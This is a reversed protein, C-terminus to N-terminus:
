NYGCKPCPGSDQYPLIKKCGGCQHVGGGCSNCIFNPFYGSGSFAGIGNSIMKNKSLGVLNVGWYFLGRLNEGFSLERFNDVSKCFPCEGKGEWDKTMFKDKFM